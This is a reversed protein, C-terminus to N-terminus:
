KRRRFYGLLGLVALGAAAPEPIVRLSGTGGPVFQGPFAAELEASSHTGPSLPTGLITVLGYTFSQDLKMVGNLALIAGPDNIDYDTEFGAGQGVIIDGSGLSGVGVGRLVGGVVNWGGSFSNNVSIIEVGRDVGAFGFNSTTIDNEDGDFPDLGINLLGGGSLTSTIVLRRFQPSNSSSDNFNQNTMEGIDMNSDSLVNIAGAVTQTFASGASGNNGNHLTGGNLKLNGFTVLAGTVGKLRMVSGTGITLSDGPFTDNTGNTPSRVIAPPPTTGPALYDAGAHAPQADSWFTGSTWTSGGPMSSVLMVDVASALSPM